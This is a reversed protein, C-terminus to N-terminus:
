LFLPALFDFALAGIVLLTALILGTEVIRNPLPRACAEGDACAIKRSRYVLWYGAGLCAVTAAIFYPQYPALRTLNGIWAGSVGLGFLALPVICCSSAALAGLVGGITLLKQIPQMATRDAKPRAPYTESEARSTM